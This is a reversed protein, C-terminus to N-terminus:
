LTVLRPILTRGIRGAARCVFVLTLSEYEIAEKMIDIGALRKDMEMEEVAPFAQSM